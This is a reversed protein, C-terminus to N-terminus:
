AAAAALRQRTRRNVIAAVVVFLDDHIALSHRFRESLARFHKMQALVNEVVIRIRALERNILKQDEKLPHNRRAKHPTAVSHEPLDHHLGDFGADALVGVERPIRALVGSERFHRLDHVSGPTSPTVARIVGKENVVLGKKVTHRKKKGSYFARQRQPDQPRRIPQETGDLIAFLDPYAAKAEMLNKGEGWEPPDPWELEGESVRRLVALIRRGNRSVTAKHVGFLAGLAETTLYLRVWMMTMLLRTALDLKYSRGAGIARQRDPRSLREREAEEW